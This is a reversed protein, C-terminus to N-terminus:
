RIRQSKQQTDFTFGTLTQAEFLPTGYRQIGAFSAEINGVGLPSLPLRRRLSSTDGNNNPVLTAGPHHISGSHPVLPPQLQAQTEITSARSGMIQPIPPLSAYIGIYLAVAVKAQTATPLSRAMLIYRTKSFAIYQERLFRSARRDLMMENM